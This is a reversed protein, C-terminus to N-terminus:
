LNIMKHNYIITQNNFFKEYVFKILRLKIKYTSKTENLSVEKYNKINESNYYFRNISILDNEIPRDDEDTEEEYELYLVNEIYYNVEDRANTKGPLVMITINDNNSRYIGGLKFYHEEM